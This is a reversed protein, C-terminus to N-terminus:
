GHRRVRDSSRVRVRHGDLRVRSRQRRHEREHDPERDRDGIRRTFFVLGDGKDDIPSDTVVVLGSGSDIVPAGATTDTNTVPSSTLTMTNAEITPADGGYTIPTGTLQVSASAGSLDIAPGAGANSVTISGGSSMLSGDNTMDVGLGPGTVDIGVDTM